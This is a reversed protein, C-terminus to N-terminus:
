WREMGDLVPYRAEMADHWSPEEQGSLCDGCVYELFVGWPDHIPQVDHTSDCWACSLIPLLRGEAFAGTPEVRVM